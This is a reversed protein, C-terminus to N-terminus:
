LGWLAMNAGMAKLEDLTIPVSVPGMALGWSQYPNLHLTLGEPTLLPFGLDPLGPEPSALAEPLPLAEDSNPEPCEGKYGYFVPLSRNPPGAAECFKRAALNWFAPLSADRAPFLDHLALLRAEAVLYSASWYDFTPNNVLFYDRVVTYLISLVGQSPQSATL